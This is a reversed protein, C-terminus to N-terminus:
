DKSSAFIWTLQPKFHKMLLCGQQAAECFSGVFYGVFHGVFHGVFVMWFHGFKLSRSSAQGVEAATAGHLFLSRSNSGPRRSSSKVPAVSLPRPRRHHRAGLPDM